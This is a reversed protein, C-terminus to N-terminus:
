AYFALPVEVKEAQLVEELEPNLRAPNDNTANSLLLTNLLALTKAPNARHMDLLKEFAVRDEISSYNLAQLFGYLKQYVVPSTDDTPM